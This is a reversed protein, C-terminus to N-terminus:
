ESTKKVPSPWSVGRRPMSRCPPVRTVSWGRVSVPATGGRSWSTCACCIMSSRTLPRPTVPASTTSSPELMVIVTGPCSPSWARESPWVACSRKRGTTPPGTGTVGGARRGGGSWRAPRVARM